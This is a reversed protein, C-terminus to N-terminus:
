TCQAYTGELRCELPLKMREVIRILYIYEAQYNRGRLVFYPLQIVFMNVVHKLFQHCM